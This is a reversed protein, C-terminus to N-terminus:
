ITMSPRAWPHFQALPHFAFNATIENTVLQMECNNWHPNGHGALCSSDVQTSTYNCRSSRKSPLGYVRREKATQTHKMSNQITDRKWSTDLWRQNDPQQLRLHQAHEKCMIEKSRNTQGIRKVWRCRNAWKWGHALGDMRTSAPFITHLTMNSGQHSLCLWDGLHRIKYIEQHPHRGSFIKNFLKHVQTLLTICNVVHKPLGLLRWTVCVM